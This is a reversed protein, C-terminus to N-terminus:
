TGGGEFSFGPPYRHIGDFDGKTLKVGRSRAIAYVMSFHFYFNPYAFRVLFERANMSVPAPGAMDKVVVELNNEVSDLSKLYEVTERLQAKLSSFSKKLKAFSVVEVGAIPCCSRLAFSAAIEAQVYLPFMDEILRAELISDDGNFHTEIKEIACSLLDLYEVFIEIHKNKM